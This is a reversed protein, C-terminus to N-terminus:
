FDDIIWPKRVPFHERMRLSHLGRYCFYTHRTAIGVTMPERRLTSRHRCQRRHSHRRLTSAAAIRLSKKAARVIRFQCSGCEAQDLAATESGGTTFQWSPLSQRSRPAASRAHQGSQNMARDAATTTSRACLPSSSTGALRLRRACECLKAGFSRNPAAKSVVIGEQECM